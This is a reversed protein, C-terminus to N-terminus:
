YKTNNLAIVLKIWRQYLLAPRNLYGQVESYFKDYLSNTVLLHNGMGLYFYHWGPAPKSSGFMGFQCEFLPHIIRKATDRELSQLWFCYINSNEDVIVVQGPSGMAGGEAFSFAISNLPLYQIYNEETITIAKEEM